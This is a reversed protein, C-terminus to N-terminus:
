RRDHGTHSEIRPRPQGRRRFAARVASVTEPLLGGAVRAAFGGMHIDPLVTALNRLADSVFASGAACSLATAPDLWWPLRASTARGPLGKWGGQGARWTLASDRAGILRMEANPRDSHATQRSRTRCAKQGVRHQGDCAHSTRCGDACGRQSTLQPANLTGLLCATEPAYRDIPATGAPTAVGSSYRCTFAPSSFPQIRLANLADSSSARLSIPRHGCIRAKWISSQTQWSAKGKENTTPSSKAGQYHVRYVAGRTGRGGIAIFLDGTAPHVLAATPAFRQGGVRSSKEPLRQLRGRGKAAFHFLGPWVDLRLSFGMRIAARSFEPRSLLRGRGTLWPRPRPSATDRRISLLRLALNRGASTSGAM